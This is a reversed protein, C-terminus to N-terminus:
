SYDGGEERKTRGERREEGYQNRETLLEYRFAVIILFTERVPFLNVVHSRVFVTCLSILNQVRRINRFLFLTSLFFSTFLSRLIFNEYFLIFATRISYSLHSSSYTFKIKRSSKCIRSLRPVFFLTTSPLCAHRRIKRRSGDVYSFVFRLRYGTGIKKRVTYDKLCLIGM